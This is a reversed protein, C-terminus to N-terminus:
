KTVSLAWDGALRKVECGHGRFHYLLPEIRHFFNVHEDLTFYYYRQKPVVVLLKGRCIRLLETAAAPLEIIHELVHTCCVVDFQRRRVPSAAAPGQSVRRGAPVADVAPCRLRAPPGTWPRGAGGDPSVRERLRHRPRRDPRRACQRPAMRRLGTSTTERKRSISSTLRSYFAEYQEDSFSYVDRKFDMVGPPMAGGYALWYFPRMFLRSDRLIPPIFEDMVFRIANTFSRNM